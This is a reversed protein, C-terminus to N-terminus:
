YVHFMLFFISLCFTHRITKTLQELFQSNKPVGLLMNGSKLWFFHIKVNFIYQGLFIFIKGYNLKPEFKQFITKFFKYRQTQWMQM